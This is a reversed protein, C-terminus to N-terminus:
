VGGCNSLAIELELEEDIGIETRGMRWRDLSADDQRERASHARTAGKGWTNGNALAYCEPSKFHIEGNASNYLTKNAIANNMVQLTQPDSSDIEEFNLVGGGEYIPTIFSLIFPRDPNITQRGLLDGRTAGSMSLEGYKGPAFDGSGDPHPFLYRAIQECIVSKGTGPLGKLYVPQGNELLTLVYAFLKHRKMGTFPDVPSLGRESLMRLSLSEVDYDSIGNQARVDSKWDITCAHLLADAPIGAPILRSGAVVPRMGIADIAESHSSEMRKCFARLKRIEEVFYLIEDRTRSKGSSSPRPTEPAPDPSVPDPSPAPSPTRPRPTETEGLMLAFVRAIEHRLEILQDSIPKFNARGGSANARFVFPKEQREVFPAFLLFCDGESLGRECAEGIVRRRKGPAPFLESASKM